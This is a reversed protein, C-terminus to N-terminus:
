CARPVIPEDQDSHFKQVPRWLLCYHAGLLEVQGFDQGLVESLVSLPHSAHLVEEVSCDLWVVVVSMQIGSLVRGYVADELEKVCSSPYLWRWSLHRIWCNWCLRDVLCVWSLQDILIGWVFGCVLHVYSSQEILAARSLPLCSLVLGVLLCVSWPTWGVVGPISFELRSISKFYRIM